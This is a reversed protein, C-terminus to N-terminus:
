MSPGAVLCFLCLLLDAPSSPVGRTPRIKTACLDEHTPEFILGKVLNEDCVLANAETVENKSGDQFLLPFFTVNLHSVGLLPTKLGM